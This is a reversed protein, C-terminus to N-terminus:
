LEATPSHDFIFYCSFFTSGGRLAVSFIKVGERTFHFCKVGRCKIYFTKSLCHPFKEVGRLFFTFM